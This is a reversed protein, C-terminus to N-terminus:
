RKTKQVSDNDVIKVHKSLFSQRNPQYKALVQDLAPRLVPAGYNGTLNTPVQLTQVLEDMWQLFADGLMASQSCSACGLNLKTNNDKLEHNISDKKITMRNLKYDFTLSTDDSFIQTRDDFLIASFKKYEDDSLDELKKQLNVNFLEISIYYPDYINNNFYMVNVLKGVAPIGFSRGDISNLPSAYPLDETPVEEPTGYVSPIRVKIRGKKNPDKVDEVLGVFLSDRLDTNFSDNQKM